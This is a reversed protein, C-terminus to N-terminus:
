ALVWSWWSRRLAVCRQLHRDLAECVLGHAGRGLTRRMEYRGQILPPAAGIQAALMYATAIANDLETVPDPASMPPLVPGM